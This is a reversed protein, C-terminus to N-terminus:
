AVFLLGLAVLCHAERAIGRALPWTMVLAIVTYAAAAYWARKM